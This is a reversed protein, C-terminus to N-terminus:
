HENPNRIRGLERVQEPTMERDGKIGNCITCMTQYNSQHNKGGKSAPIIHDKTMLVRTGDPEVAYMNFHLRSCGKPKSGRDHQLVMVNGTRGCVVCSPNNRFLWYRQSTMKVFHKEGDKAIYARRKEEKSLGQRLRAREQVMQPDIAFSLVDELAFIGYDTYEQVKIPHMETLDGSCNELKLGLAM